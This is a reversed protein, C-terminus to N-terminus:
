IVSFELYNDQDVLIKILGDKLEETKLFHSEIAMQVRLEFEQNKRAKSTITLMEVLQPSTHENVQLILLCISDALLDNKPSTIWQVKLKQADYYYKLSVGNQSKPGDQGVVIKLDYNKAKKNKESVKNLNPIQSEESAKIEDQGMFTQVSPFHSTLFYM